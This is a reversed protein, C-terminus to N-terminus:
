SGHLSREDGLARELAAHARRAHHHERLAQEFTVGVGRRCLHAGPHTRVNAAASAVLGDFGRHEVRSRRAAGGGHGSRCNFRQSGLVDGLHGALRHERHVHRQVVQGLGLHQATRM